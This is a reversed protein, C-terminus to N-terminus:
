LWSFMEDLNDQAMHRSYKAVSSQAPNKDSQDLLGSDPLVEIGSDNNSNSQQSSSCSRNPPTKTVPSLKQSRDSSQSNRRKSTASKNSMKSTSTKRRPSKEPKEPHVTHLMVKHGYKKVHSSDTGGFHTQRYNLSDSTSPLPDTNSSRRQDETENPTPTDSDVNSTMVRSKRQSKVFSEQKILNLLPLENKSENRQEAKPLRKTFNTLREMRFSTSSTSAKPSIDEGPSKADEDGEVQTAAQNAAMEYELQGRSHGTDDQHEAGVYVGEKNCLPRAHFLSWLNLNPYYKALHAAGTNRPLIINQQCCCFTRFFAERFKKNMFFYIISNSMPAAKAFFTPITSLTSPVQTFITVCSMVTYPTWCIIFSFVMICCMFSIRSQKRMYKVNFGESFGGGNKQEEAVSIGHDFILNRARKIIKQYCFIMIAVHILFCTVIVTVDYTIASLSQDVWDITCSTGFKEYTYHSWGFFPLIAWFFGYIWSSIISWTTVRKNLHHKYSPRCVIVYRYISLFVLTNLSVLSFFFTCFAYIKCGYDRFMWRGSLTSVTVLPYGFFSIGLDAIALNLLLINHCKKRTSSNRVFTVVVLSNGLTAVTAIVCLYTGAVIYGTRGLAVVDPPGHSETTM